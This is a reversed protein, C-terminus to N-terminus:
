GEIVQTGFILDHLAKADIRCYMVIGGIMWVIPLLYILGDRFAGRFFGINEGTGSRVVRLGFVAKGPTQGYRSYFFGAYFFSTVINICSSIGSLDRFMEQNWEIGRLENLSFDLSLGLYLPVLILTPISAIAILVFWDVLSALVRTIFSPPGFPVFLPISSEVSQGYKASLLMPQSSSEAYSM